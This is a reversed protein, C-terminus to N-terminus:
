RQSDTRTVQGDEQVVIYAVDPSRSFHVALYIFLGIGCLLFSLIAAGADLEARKEFTASTRTTTVVTWGGNIGARIHEALIAEREDISLM